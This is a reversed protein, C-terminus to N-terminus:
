NDPFHEQMREKRQTKLEEFKKMQEPTLISQIQQHIEKMNNHMAQRLEERNRGNRKGNLEGRIESHVKAFIEEIQKKQTENLDVAQSLKEIRNHSGASRFRRGHKKMKEKRETKM